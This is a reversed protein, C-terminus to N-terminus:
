SNSVHYDQQSKEHRELEAQIQKQELELRTDRTSQNNAIAALNQRKYEEITKKTQEVEIGKVLSYILDELFEEYDKFETLSSFNEETKNFVEKLQKRIFYDRESEVEEM